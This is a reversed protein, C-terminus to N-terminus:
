VITCLPAAAAGGGAIKAAALGLSLATCAASFSQIEFSKQQYDANLEAVNKAHEFNALSLKQNELALKYNDVALNYMRDGNMVNYQAVQSALELSRSGNRISYITGAISALSAAVSVIQVTYNLIEKKDYPANFYRRNNIIRKLTSQYDPYTIVAAELNRDRALKIAGRMIKKITRTPQGTLQKLIKEKTKESEFTCGHSFEDILCRIQTLDVLYPMNYACDDLRNRLQDPIGKMDNTTGIFLLNNAELIDLMTWFAGPTDDDRDNANQKPKNKAVSDVEDILINTGKELAYNEIRKIGGSGSNNYENALKKGSVVIYPMGMRQMIVKALTTKGSGTPGHLILIAPLMEHRRQPNLLRTIEDKLLAPAKTIANKCFDESYPKINASEQVATFTEHEAEHRIVRDKSKSSGQAKPCEQTRTTKSFLLSIFLLTFAYQKNM